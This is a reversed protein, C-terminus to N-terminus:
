PEIYKTYESPLITTNDENSTVEALVKSKIFLADLMKMQLGALGKAYTIIVTADSKLGARYIRGAAQVISLM